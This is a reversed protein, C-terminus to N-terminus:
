LLNKMAEDVQEDDFSDLYIQTTSLDSHGLMECILAIEVGSKKLITAFSHRAVYTTLPIALNLSEGIERLHKNVKHLVKHIRYQKQEPTIHIDQDFIPFLYGNTGGQYKNIIEIAQPPLGIHIPKSTKQRTYYLRGNVINNTRLNAIDVFNIGGCLYSFMFVDKALEFYPSKCKEPQSAHYINIIDEKSIARKATKTDFKSIKYDDFPYDVKRACKQEIAKNYLSRLTRFVISISTDKNKKNRMWREYRNLWNKDIACFPINLNGKCFTKISTYTRRYFVKNGYKGDKELQDFTLNFFEEITSEQHKSKQQEILTTSTFGRDEAKLSLISEQLEAIKTAIISEIYERNPCKKKPHNKNFDWYQPNISIGLSQYKRKRDKCVCLMLPHEGNTLTKCKYCVVNITTSMLMGNQNVRQNVCVTYVSEKKAQISISFFM